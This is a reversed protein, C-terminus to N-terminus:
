RWMFRQIWDIDINTTRAGPWNSGPWCFARTTTADFLMMGNAVVILATEALGAVMLKAAV